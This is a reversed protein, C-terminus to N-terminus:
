TTYLVPNSPELECALITPNVFRYEPHPPVTGLTLQAYLVAFPRIRVEGIVESSPVCIAKTLVLPEGVPIASKTNNFHAGEPVSVTLEGVVRVLVGGPEYLAHVAGHM